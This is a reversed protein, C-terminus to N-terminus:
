SMLSAASLRLMMSQTFATHGAVLEFEQAVAKAITAPRTYPM